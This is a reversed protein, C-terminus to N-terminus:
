SNVAASYNWEGHFDANIVKLEDFEEGTITVGSEYESEDIVLDGDIGRRCRGGWDSLRCASQECSADGGLEQIYIRAAPSRSQEM